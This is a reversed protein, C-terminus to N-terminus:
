RRTSSEKIAVLNSSSSLGHTTEGKVEDFTLVSTRSLISARSFARVGFVGCWAVLPAVALPMWKGRFETLFRFDGFLLPLMGPYNMGTGLRGRTRNNWGYGWEDTFRFTDPQTMDKTKPLTEL